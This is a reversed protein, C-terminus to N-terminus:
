HSAVTYAVIVLLAIVPVSFLVITEHVHRM